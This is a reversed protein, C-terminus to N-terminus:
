GRTPTPPKTPTSAPPRRPSQQDFPAHERAPDVDADPAVDRARDRQHRHEQHTARPPGATGRPTPHKSVAGMAGSSAAGGRRRAGAAAPGRRSHQLKARTVASAAAGAAATRGVRSHAPHRHRRLAAARTGGAVATARHSSSVEEHDGSTVIRVLDGRPPLFGVHFLDVISSTPESAGSWAPLPPSRAGTRRGVGPLARAARPAGRARAGRAGETGTPRTANRAMLAM